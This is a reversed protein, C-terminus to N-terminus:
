RLRPQRALGALWEVDMGFLSCVIGSAAKLRTYGNGRVLAKAFHARASRWDKALLLRRGERFYANHKIWETRHVLEADTWGVIEKYRPALTRYFERVMEVDQLNMELIHIRTQQNGHMRYYGLPRDLFRFEGQLALALHTPYDEALLPPPQLYGGIADLARKSILETPEQIYNSILLTKLVSGVPKNMVPTVFEPVPYKGIIKDQEDILYGWGFCLVVSSDDFIPIQWELRDAPWMDDSMLATVLSGSCRRLGINMTEALRAVGRRSERVYTIRPDAYRGVIDPTNDTSGDDVIIMEWNTYTQALLSEICRGIYRATNYTPTIVSVLPKSM